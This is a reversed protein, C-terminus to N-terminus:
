IYKHLEQQDDPAKIMTTTDSTNRGRKEMKTLLLSTFPISLDHNLTSSVKIFFDMLMYDYPHDKLPDVTKVDLDSFTRPICLPKAIANSKDLLDQDAM